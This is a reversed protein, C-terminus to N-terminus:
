PILDDMVVTPQAEEDDVTEFTSAILGRCEHFGCEGYTMTLMKPVADVLGYALYAKECGLNEKNKIAGNIKKMWEFM